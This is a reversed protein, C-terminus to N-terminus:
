QEFSWVISPNGTWSGNSLIRYSITGNVPNQLDNVFRIILDRGSSYAQADVPTAMGNSTISVAYGYSRAMTAEADTSFTVTVTNYINRVYSLVAMDNKISSARRKAKTKKKLTKKNWEGKEALALSSDIDENFKEAYLQSRTKKIDVNENQTTNGVNLNVTKANVFVPSFQNAAAYLPNPIPQSAAAHLPTEGKLIESELSSDVTVNM